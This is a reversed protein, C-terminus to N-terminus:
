THTHTYTYSYMSIRRPEGESCLPKPFGKNILFQFNHVKNKQLDQRHDCLLNQRHLAGLSQAEFRKLKLTGLQAEPGCETHKDGHVWPISSPRFQRIVKLHTSLVCTHFPCQTNYGELYWTLTNDAHHVRCGEVNREVAVSVYREVTKM